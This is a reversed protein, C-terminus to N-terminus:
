CPTAEARQTTPVTKLGEYISQVQGFSKAPSFETLVRYQASTGLREREAPNELLSQIESCLADRDGVGVLRGTDGLVEGVSGGDYAVVPKGCAMAECVSNGFTEYESTSVSIDCAHHFPEIPDLNGLWRLRSGLGSEAIRQEVQARYDEDGSIEGGAVLAVLRPNTDCLRQMVDIFDLVRKRPRLPSATGVVLQDSETSIEQRLGGGSERTAKCREVDIGLHVLHQASEPVVGDIADFSDAQQQRSTWLLADPRKRGGFAWAAFDHEIRYRVHCVMPRPLFRKLLSAFPYVDHENCHILEARQRKAWAAIRRAELVARWPRLKDFWPMPSVLCPVGESRLWDPFAGDRQVVVAPRQGRERGLRVWAQLIRSTSALNPNNTLYLPSM